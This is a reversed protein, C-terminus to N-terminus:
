KNKTSSGKRTEAKVRRQAVSAAQTMKRRIAAIEASHAETLSREQSELAELMDKQQEELEMKQNSRLRAYEAEYFARMSKIEAEAEDKEQKALSRCADVKDELSQITADLQDRERELAQVHKELKNLKVLPKQQATHLTDQLKDVHQRNAERAQVLAQARQSLMSQLREREADLALLRQELEEIYLSNNRQLEDVHGRMRRNMNGIMMAAVSIIAYGAFSQLSGLGIDMDPLRISPFRLSSIKKFGDTVGTHRAKSPLKPEVPKQDVVKQEESKRNRPNSAAPAYKKSGEEDISSENEDIPILMELELPKFSNSGKDDRPRLARLPPIKDIGASTFCAYLLASV